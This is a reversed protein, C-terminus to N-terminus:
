GRVKKMKRRMKQLEDWDIWGGFRKSYGIWRLIKDPYKKDFWKRRLAADRTCMGKVDIIEVDGDPYTIEFDATYQVPQFRRGYKTFEDQLRYSPQIKLDAIVGNALRPKLYERYYRAELESAFLIGDVTRRQKGRESNDINLKSRKM